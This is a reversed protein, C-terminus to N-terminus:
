SMETSDLAILTCLSQFPTHVITWWPRRQQKLSVASELTEEIIQIVARNQIFSLMVGMHRLKRYICFVADARMMNLQPEDFSMSTLKTMADLLVDTTSSSAITANDCLNPIPQIISLFGNGDETVTPYRCGDNQLTVMTRGYQASLLKNLSRATWFITRRTEIDDEDMIRNGQAIKIDGVEQHLGVSEAVHMAMCSAMWSVHSKATCRLYVIRLLWGVVFDVSLLDDLYAFTTDLLTKSRDVMAEEHVYPQVSFLSGLALVGCLVVEFGPDVARSMWARDVQLWFKQAKVMGFVPHVATFYADALRKVDQISVYDFLSALYPLQKESRTSLNWAFSQLKPLERQGANMSIGLSRPLAVASDARTFRTNVSRSSLSEESLLYLKKRPEGVAPGTIPNTSLM